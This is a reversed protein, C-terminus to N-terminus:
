TTLFIAFNATGAVGLMWFGIRLMQSFTNKPTVTVAGFLYFLGSVATFVNFWMWHGNALTAYFGVGSFISVLILGLKFFTNFYDKRSVWNLAAIGTFLSGFGLYTLM